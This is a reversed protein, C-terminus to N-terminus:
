WVDQAVCAGRWPRPARPQCWTGSPKKSREEIRPAPACWRVVTAGAAHLPKVLRRRWQYRWERSSRAMLAGVGRPGCRPAEDEEHATRPRKLQKAAMPAPEPLAHCPETVTDFNDSIIEHVVREALMKDSVAARSLHRPAGAAAGLAEQSRLSAECRIPRLPSKAIALGQEDSRTSVESRRRLAATEDSLKASRTTPSSLAFL